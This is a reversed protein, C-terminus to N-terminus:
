KGVSTPVNGSRVDVRPVLGGCSVQLRALARDRDFTTLYFLMQRFEFPFLFPSCLSLTLFATLTKVVFHEMSRVLEKSLETAVASLQRDDCQSPRPSSPFSLFPPPSLLPYLLLLFLLLLLPFSPLLTPLITMM